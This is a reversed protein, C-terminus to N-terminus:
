GAIGQYGIDEMLRPVEALADIGLPNSYFDDQTVVVDQTM